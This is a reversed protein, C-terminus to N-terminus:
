FILHGQPSSFRIQAGTRSGIEGIRDLIALVEFVAGLQLFEAPVNGAAQPDKFFVM